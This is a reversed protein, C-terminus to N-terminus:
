CFNKRNLAKKKPPILEAGIRMAAGRDRHGGLTERKRGLYEKEGKKVMGQRVNRITKGEGMGWGRGWGHLRIALM